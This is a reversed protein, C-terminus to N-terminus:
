PVDEAVGDGGTLAATLLARTQKTITGSQQIETHYISVGKEDSNGPSLLRDKGTYVVASKEMYRDHLVPWIFLLM